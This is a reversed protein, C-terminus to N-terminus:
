QLTPVKKLKKKWLHNNSTGGGWQKYRYQYIFLPLILLKAHDLSTLASLSNDL